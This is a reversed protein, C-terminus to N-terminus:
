PSATGAGPPLPALTVSLLQLDYILLSGGPVDVRTTEGYGLEPPVFLQWRAGPKMSALAQTWAKMVGNAQLTSATGPKSSSDFETGDILTGRFKVTVLDTRRPPSSNADGAEIVKYELGSPTTTVGAAEANRKLFERAAAANKVAAEEASSRLFAQLRMQDTPLLKKGALGDKIGQEVRNMPVKASVSSQHLQQGINLGMTYLADDVSPAAAPTSSPSDAWAAACLLLTLSCVDLLRRHLQNRMARFM